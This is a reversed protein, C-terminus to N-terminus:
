GDARTRRRAVESPAAPAGRACARAHALEAGLLMALSAYYFWLLAGVILALGGYVAKVGEGGALLALAREGGTLLLAVLAAAWAADRARVEAQPLKWYLATVVAWTVLFTAVLRGLQWAWTGSPLLAAAIGGLGLAVLLLFAIGMLLAWSGLRDKLLALWGRKRPEPKVDWVVNLACELASMLRVAAFLFLALTFLLMPWSPGAAAGEILTRLVEGRADGFVAAAGEELKARTGEADGMWKGAAAIVLAFLPVVALLTFFALSAASLAMGDEQFAKAASRLTHARM